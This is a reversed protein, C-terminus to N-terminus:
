DAHGYKTARIKVLYGNEFRLVRTFRRVGLNYVWEEVLVEVPVGEGRAYAYGRDHRAHRRDYYLSRVQVEIWSRAATPEGCIALIHDALDGETVIRNGCRFAEAPTAALLLLVVFLSLANRM